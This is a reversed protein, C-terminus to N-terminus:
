SSSSTVPTLWAPPRGFGPAPTWGSGCGGSWRGDRAPVAPLVPPWAHTARRAHLLRPHTAVEASANRIVWCVLAGLVVADDPPQIANPWDYQDAPAVTACAQDVWNLDGRIPLCGTYRHDGPGLTMPWGKARLQQALQESVDDAPQGAPGSVLIQETCVGTGTKCDLGVRRANPPAPLPPVDATDIGIDQGGGPRVGGPGGAIVAGLCVLVVLAGGAGAFLRPRREASTCVVRIVFAAIWGALAAGLFPFVWDTQPPTLSGPRHESVLVLAVLVALLLATILVGSRWGPPLATAILVAAALLCGVLATTLPVHNTSVTVWVTVALVPVAAVLRWRAALIRSM